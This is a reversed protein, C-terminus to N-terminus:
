EERGEGDLSEDLPSICGLPNGEESLGSSTGEPIFGGLSYARLSRGM